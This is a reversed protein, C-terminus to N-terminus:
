TFSRGIVSGFNVKIVWVVAAILEGYNGQYADNFNGKNGLSSGDRTTFALIRKIFSPGGNKQIHGVLLPLVNGLGVFDPAFELKMLRETIGKDDSAAFISLLDSPEVGAGAALKGLSESVMPLVEGFLVIADESGYMHTTYEIPKGEIDHLTAKHKIKRPATM